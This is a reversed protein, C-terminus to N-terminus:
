RWRPYGRWKEVPAHCIPAPENLPVGDLAPSINSLELGFRKLITPAIDARDGRRIIGADNTALFVFPAYTHKKQGEDFGHDSTIYVHTKEYLGLEKLKTIIKGTWYDDSKIGETYEKSNEGYEHGSHDSEAFHIFFFFRQDKYKELNEIATSAVKENKKLGNIFLDMADKTYYYPNGPFEVYFSGGEKVIRGGNQVLKGESPKPIRKGQRRLRKTWKEFSINSPGDADVNGKKGVIAVTIINEPGFYKELREFTSYGVPIPRYKGNSLVGSIEPVYGTLIQTWGAKTDTAGTTIDIDVMAGEKSLDVIHMVENRLIMEKLHNRQVGDWGILLINRIDEQNSHVQGALLFSGFFGLLFFFRKWDLVRGLFDRSIMYIGRVGDKIIVSAAVQLVCNPSTRGIILKALSRGINYRILAAQLAIHETFFRHHKGSAAMLGPPFLSAGFKRVKCWGERHFKIDCNAVELKRVSSQWHDPV